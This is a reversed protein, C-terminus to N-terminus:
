LMDDIRNGKSDNWASLKVTLNYHVHLGSVLKARLPIVHDVHVDVGAARFEAADQYIEKIKRWDAWSPTRIKLGMERNRARFIHLAPNRAYGDRKVKRYKEPDADRKAKQDALVSEKNEEYWRKKQAAIKESNKVRWAKQYAQREPTIM